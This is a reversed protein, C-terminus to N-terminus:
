RFKIDHKKGYAKEKVEIAKFVTDVEMSKDQFEKFKAENQTEYGEKLTKFAATILKARKLMLEHIELIEADTPKAAAITDEAKKAKTIWSDVKGAQEELPTNGFETYIANQVQLQPRVKKGYGEYLNVHKETSYKSYGGIAILVVVVIGSIVNKGSSENAM